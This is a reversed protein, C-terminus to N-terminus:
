RERVTDVCIKGVTAATDNSPPSSAKKEKGKQERRKEEQNKKKKKRNRSYETVACKESSIPFNRRSVSSDRSVALTFESQRVFCLIQQFSYHRGVSSFLFFVCVSPASLM